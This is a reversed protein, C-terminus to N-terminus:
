SWLRHIERGYIAAGVFCLALRLCRTYRSGILDGHKQRSVNNLNMRGGIKVRIIQKFSKREQRLQLSEHHDQAVQEGDHHQSATTVLASGVCTGSELM